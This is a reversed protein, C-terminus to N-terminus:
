ANHTTPEEEDSHNDGQQLAFVKEITARYDAVIKGFENQREDIERAKEEFRKAKEEYFTKYEDIKSNIELATKANEKLLGDLYEMNEKYGQTYVDITSQVYADTDTAVQRVREDQKDFLETTEKVKIDFEHMRKDLNSWQLAVIFAGVVALGTIVVGLMTEAFAFTDVRGTPRFFFSVIFGIVIGVAVWGASRLLFISAQMSWHVLKNKM